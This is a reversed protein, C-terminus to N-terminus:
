KFIKGQNFKKGGFDGEWLMFENITKKVAADDPNLKTWKYSEYDVQCDPSLKFALEHSRWFWVGAISTKKNEGFIGMSGFAHKRMKDLRQFMGAVLNCSQFVLSGTLDEIYECYWVSYHEKDFNKWFYPLAEKETDKNSYTRKWEDMDWTGKPFALFPDKSEKPKPPEEEAAEPEEKKPKDKGKKAQQQQEKPAKKDKKKDGHGGHHGHHHGHHGHGGGQHLEGFKKADFQAMKTALTVEGVVAKFNPQNVVTTFWRNVNQFPKRFEPDMVQEYLMLMNCALTIDAQTISEGVLYTRTLLYNNLVTLAKTVQTKARDTEQKNLQTIGLCPFVWTCVSPLIENDAFDIWQQVQAAAEPTQGQLQKNGVYQAIANSEFLNLGNKATFAPVKGLPFKELFSASHNTEGFKFANDVKVDAGSYRAAVLAKFARFNKPYTYLTGAAM